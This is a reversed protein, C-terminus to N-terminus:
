RKHKAKGDFRVSAVVQNLLSDCHDTGCSL